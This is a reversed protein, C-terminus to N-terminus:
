EDTSRGGNAGHAARRLRDNIAAGLGHTPISTAAIMSARSEDLEKLMAFLNRAAEELDGSPSLNRSISSDKTFGPGFCLFAEGKNAANANLRLPKSPAYHALLMGPAQVKPEPVQPHILTGVVAALDETTIGGERLIHVGDEMCRLITSEVGVVCPGGDLIVDLKGGLDAMVHQATTPSIRGSSNASPAAIPSGLEDALRAMVGKPQRLAVTGLGATVDACINSSEKLPLVLTLPGPWFIEILQRSTDDIIAHHDAMDLGSVHSILPNFSPRGKAKYIDAVANAHTADAALGYVTETPVAVLGGKQLANLATEFGSDIDLVEVMNSNCALKEM